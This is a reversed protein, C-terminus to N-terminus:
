KLITSPLDLSIMLVDDSQSLREGIIFGIAFLLTKRSIPDDNDKNVLLPYLYGFTSVPIFTVFFREIM